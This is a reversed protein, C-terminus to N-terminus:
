DYFQKVLIFPMLRMGADDLGFHRTTHEDIANKPFDVHDKIGSDSGIKITILASRNSHFTRNM